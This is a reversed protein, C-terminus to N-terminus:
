YHARLPPQQPWSPNQRTRIYREDMGVHFSWERYSTTSEDWIVEILGIKPSLIKVYSHLVELGDLM